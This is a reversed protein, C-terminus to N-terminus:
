NMSLVESFEPELLEVCTRRCTICSNIRWFRHFLALCCGEDGPFPEGGARRGTCFIRACFFRDWGNGDDEEDVGRGAVGPNSAGEVLLPCVDGNDEAEKGM